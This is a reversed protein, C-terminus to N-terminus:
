SEELNPYDKTLERVVAVFAKDKDKVVDMLEQIKGAADKLGIQLSIVKM